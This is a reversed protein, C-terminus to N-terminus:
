KLNELIQGYNNMLEKTHKEGYKQIYAANIWAAFTTISKVGAESYIQVDRSFLDQNWPPQQLNERNWDSFLSVDLWYELIHASEPPFVKLNGELNNIQEASMPKTYDRHIPAFELFVGPLPKVKVPPIITEGYALHAVTADSDIEKLAELLANEYLLVQESPTYKSCEDCHCYLQVDDTWFFYRHSTPKLIKAMEVANKKIIGMAPKSSFCMNYDGNRKGDKDVRFYKPYEAFLDRPLFEMLIHQEYEVDISNKECESKFLKGKDSDLFAILKPLTELRTDSHIGILNIGAPHAMDVWKRVGVSILDSPYVVVGRM